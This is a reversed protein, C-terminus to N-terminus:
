FDITTTSLDYYAVSWGGGQATVSDSLLTASGSGSMSNTGLDTWTSIKSSPKAQSDTYYVFKIIRYASNRANPYTTTRFFTAPAIVNTNSETGPFIQQVSRGFKDTTDAKGGACGQSAGVDSFKFEVPTVTATSGTSETDQAFATFSACSLIMLASLM